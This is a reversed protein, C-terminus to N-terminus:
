PAKSISTLAAIQGAFSTDVIASVAVVRAELEHTARTRADQYQRWAISISIGALLLVAIAAAAIIRRRFSAAGQYLVGEISLPQTPSRLQPPGGASGDLRGRRSRGFVTKM